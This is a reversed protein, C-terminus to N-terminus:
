QEEEMIERLLSLALENQEKVEEPTLSPKQFREQQHWATVFKQYLPDRFTRTFGLGELKQLAEDLEKREESSLRGQQQKATLRHKDDLTKQTEEDLTTPLGFLESTLIGAVGLGKPDTEPEFVVTRGTDKDKTFIRVQEKTMSGIVLPDHTNLIIQTTEHKQVVEKLLKLYQWKWLPNLHTDPEDLLILSEEDKTFKLLGLVTLLQQEGESLEKFTLEGQVNRKKVKVKIEQILNSIYTSELAKFFETNSTYFKAIEKLKNKDSIYLCLRPQDVGKSRFDPYDKGIYYIPAISYNWVKDLFDKVLGTAGWFRPDDNGKWGPDKLIFLISEIDEIGLYDKLFRSSEDDEFSFFALLVFYSHILRVYFLKRLDEIEVADINSKIIKDYFRKQHDNFHEELRNSLGSYYTFVYKPLYDNRREYFDKITIKTDDIYFTRKTDFEVKVKYGRCFYEITYSFNPTSEIDLYKFILVLAEILNSKGTANQGILVTEMFDEALDIEFNILNKFNEIYVKDIRM